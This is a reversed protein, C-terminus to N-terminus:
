CQVLQKSESSIRSHSESMRYANITDTVLDNYYVHISKFKDNNLEGLSIPILHQTAVLGEHDNLFKTEPQQWNPQRQGYNELIMSANEDWHLMLM